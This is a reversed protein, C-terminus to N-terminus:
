HHDTGHYAEICEAMGDKDIEDFRQLRQWATLAYRTEKTSTPQEPAPKQYTNM